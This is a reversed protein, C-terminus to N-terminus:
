WPHGDVLPYRQSTSTVTSVPVQRNAIARLTPGFLCLRLVHRDTHPDLQYSPWTYLWIIATPCVPRISRRNPRLHSICHFLYYPYLYRYANETNRNSDSSHYLTTTTIHGRSASLFNPWNLSAGLNMDRQLQIFMTNLMQKEYCARILQTSLPKSLFDQLVKVYEQCRATESREIWIKYAVTKSELASMFSLQPSRSVSNSSIVSYLYIPM